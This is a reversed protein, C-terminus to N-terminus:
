KKNKLYPYLILSAITWILFSNLLKNINHTFFSDSSFYFVFCLLIIIAYGILTLKILNKIAKKPRDTPIYNNKRRKENITSIAYLAFFIFFIFIGLLTLYVTELGNSHRVLPVFFIVFVVFFAIIIKSWKISKM